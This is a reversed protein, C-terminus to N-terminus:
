SRRRKILAYSPTDRLEEYSRSTPVSGRDTMEWVQAPQITRTETVDGGHATTVAEVVTPRQAPPTCVALVPPTIEFVECLTALEHRLLAVDDYRQNLTALAQQYARAAVLLRNGDQSLQDDLSGVAKRINLLRAEAEATLAAQAKAAIQTEVDMLERAALERENPTAMVQRLRARKQELSEEAEGIMDRGEQSGHGRGM